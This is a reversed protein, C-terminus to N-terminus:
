ALHQWHIGMSKPTKGSHNYASKATQPLSEENHITGEDPATNLDADRRAEPSEETCQELAKCLAELEKQFQQQQERM